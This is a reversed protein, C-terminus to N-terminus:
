VTLFPKDAEVLMLDAGQLVIVFEELPDIAAIFKDYSDWDFAASKETRDILNNINTWITRAKDVIRFSVQTNRRLACVDHAVYQILLHVLDTAAFEKSTLPPQTLDAFLSYSM